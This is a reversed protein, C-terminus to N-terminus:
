ADSQNDLITNEICKYYILWSDREKSNKNVNSLIQFVRRIHKEHDRRCTSIIPSTSKLARHQEWNKYWNDALPKDRM